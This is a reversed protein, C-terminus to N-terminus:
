ENNIRPNIEPPLKALKSDKTIAMNKVIAVFYNLNKNKKYLSRNRFIRYARLIAMSNKEYARLKRVLLDQNSQNHVGMLQLVIPPVHRVEKPLALLSLDNIEGSCSPCPSGCCTCYGM